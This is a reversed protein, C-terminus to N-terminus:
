RRRRRGGDSVRFLWTRWSGFARRKRACTACHAFGSQWKRHTWGLAKTAVAVKKRDLDAGAASVRRPRARGSPRATAATGCARLRQRTMRSIAKRAHKDEM